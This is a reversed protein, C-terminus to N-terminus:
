TMAPAKTPKTTAWMPPPYDTTGRNSDAGHKAIWPLDGENALLDELGAVGRDRGAVLRSRDGRGGDSSDPSLAREAGLTPSCLQLAYLRHCTRCNSSSSTRRRGSAALPQAVKGAAEHQLRVGPGGLDTGCGGRRRGRDLRQATSGGPDLGRDRRRGCGAAAVGLGELKDCPTPCHRTMESHSYFGRM